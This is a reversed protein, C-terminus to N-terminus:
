AFFLACLQQLKHWDTKRIFCMSEDIDGKNPDFILQQHECFFPSNDISTPRVVGAPRINWHRWARVFATPVIALALDELLATNGNLANENM